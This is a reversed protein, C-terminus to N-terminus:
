RGAKVWTCSDIDMTNRVNQNKWVYTFIWWISFLVWVSVGLLPANFTSGLGPFPCATAAAPPTPPLWHGKEASCCGLTGVCWLRRVVLHLSQRRQKPHNHTFSAFMWKYTQIICNESRMPLYRLTSSLLSRNNLSQCTSKSPPWTVKWRLYVMHPKVTVLVSQSNISM